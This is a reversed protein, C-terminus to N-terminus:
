RSRRKQNNQNLLEEKEQKLKEIASRIFVGKDEQKLSKDVVVERPINGYNTVNDLEELTLEREEEM